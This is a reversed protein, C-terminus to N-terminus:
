IFFIGSFINDITQTSQCPTKNKALLMYKNPDNKTKDQNERKTNVSDIKPTNIINQNVHAKKLIM